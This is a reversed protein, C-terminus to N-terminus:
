HHRMEHCPVCLLRVDRPLEHGMREYTLHHVHLARGNGGSGCDECKRSREALIERRFAKWKTSAIHDLYAGRWSSKLKRIVQHLVHGALLLRVERGRDKWEKGGRYQKIQRKITDIEKVARRYQGFESRTCGALLFKLPPAFDRAIRTSSPLATSKEEAYAPIARHDEVIALRGEDDMEERTRQKKQPKSKQRQLTRTSDQTAM